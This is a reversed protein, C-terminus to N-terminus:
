RHKCPNSFVKWANVSRFDSVNYYCNYQSLAMGGVPACDPGCFFDSSSQFVEKGAVSIPVFAVLQNIYISFNMLFTPSFSESEGFRHKGRKDRVM